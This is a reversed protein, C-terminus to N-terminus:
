LAVNILNRAVNATKPVQVVVNNRKQKKVNQRITRANLEMLVNMKNTAACRRIKAAGISEKNLVAIKAQNVADVLRKVGAVAHKM